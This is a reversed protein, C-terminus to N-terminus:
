MTNGTFEYRYLLLFYYCNTQRKLVGNTRGTERKCSRTISQAVTSKSFSKWLFGCSRTLVRGIWLIQSVTIMHIQIRASTCTSAFHLSEFSEKHQIQQIFIENARLSMESAFSLLSFWTSVFFTFSSRFSALQNIRGQTYDAMDTLEVVPLLSQLGSSGSFPKGWSRLVYSAQNGLPGNSKTIM